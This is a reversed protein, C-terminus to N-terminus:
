MNFLIASTIFTNVQSYYASVKTNHAIVESLDAIKATNSEIKRVETLMNNMTTNLTELNLNMKKVENYVMYQNQKIKELETLVNSLQGIIVNQRLENEYINYAGEHGELSRCRGSSLYEYFTSLAVINRYKSFVVDSAYLLNRKKFLEKLANEAQATEKEVIDILQSQVFEKEDVNAAKLKEERDKELAQKKVEADKEAQALLSATQAAYKTTNEAYEAQAKAYDLALQANEEEVKKKNFLGPTKLAPPLPAVPASIEFIGNKYNELRKVAAEYEKELASNPCLLDEKAKAKAEIFEMKLIASNAYLEPLRKKLTYLYAETNILAQIYDKLNSASAKIQAGNLILGFTPVNVEKYFASAKKEAEYRCFNERVVKMGNYTHELSIAGNPEFFGREKVLKAGCNPCTDVQSIEKIESTIINKYKEYVEVATSYLKAKLEAGLVEGVTRHGDISRELLNYEAYIRSACEKCYFCVYSNHQKHYFEAYQQPNYSPAVIYEVDQFGEYGYKEKFTLSLGWPSLKNQLEKIQEDYFSTKNLKFDMLNIGKM